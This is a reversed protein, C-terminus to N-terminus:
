QVFKNSSWLTSRQSVIEVQQPWGNIVMKMLLCIGHMGISTPQGDALRERASLTWVVGTERDVRSVKDGDLVYLDRPTVALKLHGKFSAQATPTMPPTEEMRGCVGALTAVRKREMDYIRVCSFDAIYM